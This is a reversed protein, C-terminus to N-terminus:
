AEEQAPIVQKEKMAEMLAEVADMAGKVEQRAINFPISHSYPNLVARRFLRIQKLATNLSPHNRKKVWTEIASLFDESKLDRHNWKFPIAIRKKECFHTLAWEFATRTYNAAAADHNAKFFEKAQKLAQEATNVDVERILPLSQGPLTHNGEYIEACHWSQSDWLYFRVMDFWVRDYTLLVIQWDGFHERLVDLVPLRNAHDLGILVDDLVLLKLVNESRPPVFALRGALYIALGLASLRAENLLHQPRTVPHDHFKIRPVLNMGSLKREAKSAKAEYVIGSFSFSEIKVDAGILIDLLTNVHSPLRELAQLFGTNFQTCATAIRNKVKQTLKEEPSPIKEEVDKWLEGITRSVGGEVPVPFDHVLHRVAIDFLNVEQEGHKYNTDLLSRYDLCARRLAAQVVREDDLFGRQFFSTVGAQLVHAPESGVRLRAPHHNNDWVASPKGDDFAVEVQCEPVDSFVNKYESIPKNPSLSFFERLAHFISSKGSGNEGYVLLNNGKFEVSVSAPGPFARFNMLTLKNIRM